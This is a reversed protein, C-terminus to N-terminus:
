KLCCVCCLMCLGGCAAFVYVFIARGGGEGEEGGKERRWSVKRAMWVTASRPSMPAPISAAMNRVDGFDLHGNGNRDFMNLLQGTQEKTLAVHAHYDIATQLEVTGVQDKSAVDLANFIRKIELDTHELKPKRSLVRRAALMKKGGFWGFHQAKFVDLSEVMQRFELFDLVGDRDFDFQRVFEESQEASQPTHFFENLCKNVEEADITGSGDLDFAQFAEMMETAEPPQPTESGFIEEKAMKAGARLTTVWKSVRAGATTKAFEELWFKMGSSVDSTDMSDLNRCMIRFEDFDVGGSGDGDYMSICADAEEPTLDVGFFTTMANTLEDADVTGSGDLDYADFARKMADFTPRVRFTKNGRGGKTGDGGGGGGGSGGDGGGGGGGSGGDGDGGGGGGGGGDDDDDDDDKEGLQKLWFKCVLELREGRTRTSPWAPLYQVMAHLESFDIFGDGDLDYKKVIRAAQKPEIKAGFTRKVLAIIDDANINGAAGLNIESFAAQTDLLGAVREGGIANSLTLMWHNIIPEPRIDTLHIVAATFTEEEIEGMGRGMADRTELHLMLINGEEVTLEIGGYDEVVTRLEIVDLVGDQKVDFADFVHKCKAQLPSQNLIRFFEKVRHGGELRSVQKGIERGITKSQLDSLGKFEAKYMDFPMAWAGWVMMLREAEEYLLNFGFFTSFAVIVEEVTVWGSEDTDIRLFARQLTM